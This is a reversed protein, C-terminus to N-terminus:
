KDAIADVATKSLWGAAYGLGFFFGRKRPKDAQQQLRARERECNQLMEAAFRRDMESQELVGSFEKGVEYLRGEAIAAKEETVRQLSDKAAFASDIQPYDIYAQPPVNNVAAAAIAKWRNVEKDKAGLKVTTVSDKHEHVRAISDIRTATIARLETLERQVSDYARRIQLERESPGNDPSECSRSLLLITLVVVATVLIGLWIKM